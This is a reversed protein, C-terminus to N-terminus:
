EDDVEVWVGPPHIASPRFTRERGGPCRSSEGGGASLPQGEAAKVIIVACIGTEGHPCKEYLTITDNM